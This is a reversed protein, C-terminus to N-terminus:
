SAEFQKTVDALSHALETLKAGMKHSDELRLIHDSSIALMQQSSASTEQSVSSFNMMIRQIGPLEQKLNNLEGQMGHIREHVREIEKMLHELSAKSGNAVSLHSKIKKIMQDFEDSARGTIYEMGSISKTIAESAHSSQEALKKIEEAVVSFGKGAAGARAAEISANLALLKTQGAIHQILGVQRSISIAHDNVSHITGAMEAFDREYRHFTAILEMVSQEGQEASADMAESSRYVENMHHILDELKEKMDQFSTLSDESSSATQEAGEKVVYISAILQKSFSMADHTSDSLKGGADRLEATLEYLEHIVGRMQGLMTLFSTQLSMIEPINTRIDVKPNLNGEQVEAMIKQLKTIPGTISRVFWLILLIAILLSIGSIMLTFRATQQIPELYSNSPVLLIYKGEIEPISKVSVTYDEGSMQTHFVGEGGAAQEIFHDSLEMEASKSAQFPTPTQDVLAYFESLLGDEELQRKQEHISMEVQQKFYVQDSVYVFKLNRIVYAMVDAERELRDEVTHILTSKAKMYSSIGIASVSLCLIIIFLSLLRSKLSFQVRFREGWTSKM